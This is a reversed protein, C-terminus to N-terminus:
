ALIGPHTADPPFRPSTLPNAASPSYNVPLDARCTVRQISDCPSVQDTDRVRHIFDLCHGLFDLVRISGVVLSFHKLSRLDRDHARTISSCFISSLNSISGSSLKGVVHWTRVGVLLGGTGTVSPSNSCYRGLGAESVIVTTKGWIEGENDLCSVTTSHTRRKPSLFTGSILL